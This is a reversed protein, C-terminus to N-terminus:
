AASSGKSKMFLFGGAGGVLVVVVIVIVIIMGGGGGGGDAGPTPTATASTVPVQTPTPSPTATPEPTPTLTPTPTATPVDPPVPTATALPASPTATPTPTLTPTPTPTLTVGPPVETPTPTPAQKVAIVAFVSFGGAEGAFTATCNAVDGTITCTAVASFVKGDDAIKTIVITKGVAQRKIVWAADVNMTMTNNGLSDNTINTKTVQVVFAIDEDGDVSGGPVILDAALSFIAGKDPVFASADKAFEFEISAGEPLDELGVNFSVDITTIEDSGGELQSADPAEPEVVLVPEEFVIELEGDKPVLSVKGVIKLGQAVEIEGTGVGDTTDVTINGVKLKVEGTIVSEETLGTVVLKIQIKGPEVADLTTTGAVVAVADGSSSAIGLASNLSDNAVEVQEETVVVKKKVEVEQKGASPAPTPTPTPPLAKVTFVGVQAIALTETSITIIYPGPASRTITTSVLKAGNPDLTVLEVHDVVGAVLITIPADIVAIGATEQVTMTLTVAQGSDVEAPEITLDLVAVVGVPAPGTPVPTATPDPSGGGGGGGGFGGGGGSPPSTPTPTPTQAAATLNLQASGGVCFPYTSVTSGVSPFTVTSCGATSTPNAVVTITASVGGVFFSLADGSVAGTTGPDTDDSRIQFDDASGTGFSGGGTQPTTRRTVSLAYNTGGARAEVQLGDPAASGGVTVSGFALMPVQPQAQAPRTVGFLVALALVMFTLTINATKIV